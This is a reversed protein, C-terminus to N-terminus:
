FTRYCVSVYFTHSTSVWTCCLYFTKRRVSQCYGWVFIGVVRSICLVFHDAILM